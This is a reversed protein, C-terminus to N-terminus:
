ISGLFNYSNVVENDDYKEDGFWRLELNDVIELKPKEENLDREIMFNLTSLIVEVPYKRYLLKFVKSRFNNKDAKRISNEM